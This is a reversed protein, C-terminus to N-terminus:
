KSSARRVTDPQRYLSEFTAPPVDFGLMDLYGSDEMQVLDHQHPRTPPPTDGAARPTPSPFGDGGGTSCPSTAVVGPDPLEPPEMRPNRWEMTRGINYAYRHRKNLHGLAFKYSILKLISEFGLTAHSVAGPRV